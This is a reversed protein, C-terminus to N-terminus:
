NSVYFFSLIYICVEEVHRQLELEDTGSSKKEKTTRSEADEM